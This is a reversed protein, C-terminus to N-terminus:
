RRRIAGLLGVFALGCLALTTPEPVVALFMNDFYAATSGNSLGSGMRINDYSRISATTGVNSVQEALIGDVYFNYDTSLGDDTSIEVKLNHWGTSRLPSTGFDNLKFFSGSSGGTDEPTYGLIRAMYYNGGNATALQNNNLGMAILQNTGGPATTDQLNSYNRQPNNPSGSGSDYFDFSWIIRQDGATVTGTETFIRQNRSQNSTATGPAKASHTPSVSQETSWETSTPAVTGIPVWTAEFNAQSTYGEFDDNVIVGANATSLGLVLVLTATLATFRRM